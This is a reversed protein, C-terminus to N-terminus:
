SLAQRFQQSICFAASLAGCCYGICFAVFTLGLLVTLGIGPQPAAFFRFERIIDPVAAWM